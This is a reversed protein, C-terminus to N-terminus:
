GDPGEVKTGQKIASSNHEILMSEVDALQSPMVEYSNDM